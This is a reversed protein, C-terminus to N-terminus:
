KYLSDIIKFYYSRYIIGIYLKYSKNIKVLNESQFDPLKIPLTRSTPLLINM